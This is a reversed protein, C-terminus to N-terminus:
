QIARQIKDLEKYVANTAESKLKFVKLWFITGNNEVKAEYGEKDLLKKVTPIHRNSFSSASTMGAAEIWSRPIPPPRSNSYSADSDLAFSNSTPVTATSWSSSAIVEETDTSWIYRDSIRATAGVGYRTLDETSALRQSVTSPLETSTNDSFNPM